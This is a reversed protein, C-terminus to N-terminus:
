GSASEFVKLENTDKDLCSIVTEKQEFLQRNDVMRPSDEAVSDVQGSQQGRPEEKHHQSAGDGQHHVDGSPEAVFISNIDSKLIESIFCEYIIIHLYLM